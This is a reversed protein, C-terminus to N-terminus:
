GKTPPDKHCAAVRFGHITKDTACITNPTRRSTIMAAYYGTKRVNGRTSHIASMELNTNFDLSNPEYQVIDEIHVTLV